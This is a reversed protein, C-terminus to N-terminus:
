QLPEADTLPEPWEPESASKWKCGDRALVSAFFTSSGGPYRTDRYRSPSVLLRALWHLSRAPFGQREVLLDVVRDCEFAHCISQATGHYFILERTGRLIESELLFSRMVTGVSHKEYGCANIQSHLVTTSDQRWGAAVSMWRGSSRERLGMLFAGPEQAAAFRRRCEEEPVKNLAAAGLTLMEELSILKRADPVFEVDVESLLHKRQYRLTTRTKKGFRALLADYTPELRLRTHLEREDQAWRALPENVQADAAGGPGAMFTTLVVLAGREMLFAASGAAIASRIADPAVVTRLGQWDDTTYVQTPLGFPRFEFLLTFGLIDELRLDANGAERRLLVVVVPMKWQSGRGSFFYPLWGMAANQGCSAAFAQLVATQRWIASRGELLRVHLAQTDVAASVHSAAYVSRANGATRM